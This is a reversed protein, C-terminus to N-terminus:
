HNSIQRWFIDISNAIEARATEQRDGPTKSRGSRRQFGKGLAAVTGTRLGGGAEVAVGQQCGLREVNVRKAGGKGGPDVPEKM